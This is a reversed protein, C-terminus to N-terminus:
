MQEMEALGLPLLTASMGLLELVSCGKSQCPMWSMQGVQPASQVPGLWPVLQGKVLLGRKLM